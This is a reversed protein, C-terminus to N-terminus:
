QTMDIYNELKFGQQSADLNQCVNCQLKIM